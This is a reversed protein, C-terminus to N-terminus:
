GATPWKQRHSGLVADPEPTTAHTTRHQELKGLFRPLHPDFRSTDATRLEAPTWWRVRHFEGQDPTLAQERPCSLVFWLSVDTHGADMGVTRTVTLFLPREALEHQDAILGLEEHVERQATQAPHEDVEVHGGPPLWLGANVHDVLLISGDVPDVPVVYSVLHQPPVAPKIRRFVDDTCRLWQLTQRRHADELEDIPQLQWVM